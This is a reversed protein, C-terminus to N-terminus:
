RCATGCPAVVVVVVVVVVLVVVKVVVVVVVQVSDWMARMAVERVRAELNTGDVM